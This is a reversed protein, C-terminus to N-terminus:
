LTTPSDKFSHFGFQSLAPNFRAFGARAVHAFRPFLAPAVLFGHAVDAVSLAGLLLKAFRPESVSRRFQFRSRFILLQWVLNLRKRKDAAAKSYPFPLKSLRKFPDAFISGLRILM